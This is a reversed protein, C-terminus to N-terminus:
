SVTHKDLTQALWVGNKTITTLDHETLKKEAYYLYVAGDLVEVATPWFHAAVTQTIEPTLIMSVDVARDPVCFIDYRSRLEPSHEELDTKELARLSAFVKKYHVSGHHTPILFLHPIDKAVELNFEAILWQHTEVKGDALSVIDSRDVFTIDYGDYAGVMYNDDSHTLSASFGRVVKHDDVHQDVTGFYVFGLKEGFKRMVRRRQKAQASARLLFARFQERVSQGAM